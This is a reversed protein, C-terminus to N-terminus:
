FSVRIMCFELHPQIRPDGILVSVIDNLYGWRCRRACGMKLEQLKPPLSKVVAAPAVYPWSSALIILFRLNPMSSRTKRAIHRLSITDMTFRDLRPFFLGDLQAAPVSDCIRLSLLQASTLRVLETMYDQSRWDPAGSLDLHRICPLSLIGLASYSRPVCDATPRCYLLVLTRLNKARELTEFVTNWAVLRMCLFKLHAVPFTIRGTLDTRFPPHSVDLKALRDFTLYNDINATRKEIVLLINTPARKIHPTRLFANMSRWDIRMDRDIEGQAAHYTLPYEVTDRGCALWRPKGCCVAPSVQACDRLISDCQAVRVLDVGDLFSCVNEWLEPPFPGSNPVLHLVDPPNEDISVQSTAIRTRHRKPRLPAILKRLM